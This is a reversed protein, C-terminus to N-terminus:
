SLAHIRDKLLLPKPQGSKELGWPIHAQAPFGFKGIQPTSSDSGHCDSGYTVELGLKRAAGFMYRNMLKVEIPTKGLYNYIEVGDLGNEDRLMKIFQYPTKIKGDKSEVYWQSEDQEWEKSLGNEKYARNLGPHALVAKGGSFHIADIAQKFTFPRVNPDSENMMFGYEDSLVSRLSPTGREAKAVMESKAGFKQLVYKMLHWPAIYSQNDRPQLSSIWKLVLDLKVEKFDEPIDLQIKKDANIKPFDADKVYRNFSNIQHELKKLRIAYLQNQYPRMREVDIGYGLVELGHVHLKQDHHEAFIEIAPIVTVGLLGAMQQAEKIGDTTDHDTIAIFSLKFLFAETVVETPSRRGDSQNTHLHFDAVFQGPEVGRKHILVDV